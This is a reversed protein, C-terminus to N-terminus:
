GIPLWPHTQHFYDDVIYKAESPSLCQHTTGKGLELMCTAFNLDRERCAVSDLFLMPFLPVYSKRMERGFETENESVQVNSSLSLTGLSQPTSADQALRLALSKELEAVRERLVTCEHQYATRTRPENEDGAYECRRGVRLCLSCEPSERSCKRKLKKCAICAREAVEMSIGSM